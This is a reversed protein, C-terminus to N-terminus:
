SADKRHQGKDRTIGCIITMTNEKGVAEVDRKGALIAETPIGLPRQHAATEPAHRPWHRVTMTLRSQTAPAGPPSGPTTGPLGAAARHLSAGSDDNLHDARHMDDKADAILAAVTKQCAPAGLHARNSARPTTAAPPRPRHPVTLRGSHPEAAPRRLGHLEEVAKLGIVGPGVPARVLRQILRRHARRHSLQEALQAALETVPPDGPRVPVHPEPGGLRRVLGLDVCGKLPTPIDPEARIPQRGCGITDYLQASSM